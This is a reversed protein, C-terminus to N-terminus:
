NFREVLLEVRKEWAQVKSRARRLDERSPASSAPSGLSALAIVALAFSVSRRLAARRRALMM